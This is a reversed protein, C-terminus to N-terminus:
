PTFTGLHDLTVFTSHPSAAAVASRLTGLGGWDRAPRDLPLDFDDWHTPLVWTPHDLTRMLRGVYDHLTGGGAPVLAVDPRLGSLERQIFNATSLVLLRLREGVTIQYALTGGEVLDAVTAPTAFPGAGPRTGPFPVQRRAGTCSHLSRFVEVTYGADFQLYEGGCVMSLQGAPAHLATLLNLHSETGLVTAGTQRAIYPVDTMHDFHGHCVLVLDARTVYRDVVAPDV